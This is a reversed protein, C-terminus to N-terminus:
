PEYLQRLDACCGRLDRYLRRYLAYARDYVAAARADPLYTRGGQVFRGIDEWRDYLGCSRAALFATGLASGPHGTCATVPAGLVDAAIQCWLASNAGGDSALIRRPRCGAAALVDAHHRFGYMVAELAARYLHARTHSLTLGFFVGRADPDFLPTKEGLFYPLVILGDSAPPIAAAAEDMRRYSDPDTQGLIDRTLWKVLSGSAAMCGNLLYQGPVVHCDFYLERLPAVRDIDYLIDGAGGFKILLDGPATMGVALASAVHDASGAIVPLGDPLGLAAMGRTHGVVASSASVPALLAPDLGFRTLYETIWGNKHIDYLGSEVAWNKEVQVAGTLRFAIWDYSGIVSRVRAFAAPEHRAVWLLRPLLHQQNTVGGTRAFLEDQDLAAKIEEIEATARADNQQITARVPRGAADLLVLAPVMGSVGIAALRALQKPAAAAIERVCDAANQWWIDADEEAWGARPSVLDHARTAQAAIGGAGDILLVKVSTTGIDIGLATRDDTM